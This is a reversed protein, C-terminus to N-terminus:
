GMAVTLRGQGLAQRTPADLVVPPLLRLPARSGRTAACLIRVAPADARAHVPRIALGGLRNGCAGAIAAVQDPRGIMHFRGGHRLLAAAVAIWRTTFTDDPEAKAAARAAVPSVRGGAPHFPPNTLVLDFAGDVLGAAERVPRQLLLDLEAVRLRGALGANEPLALTQRALEAVTPDREALTVALVPARFAAALAVAGSGSGLDAAAGAQEPEVTAALLLADDGARLGSKAPQLLYFAGGYFADKTVAEAAPSEPVTPCNTLWGRM